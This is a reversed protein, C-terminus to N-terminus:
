RTFEFHRYESWEGVGRRNVARVRFRGRNAGAFSIVHYPVETKEIPRAFYTWQNPEPSRQGVSWEVEYTMPYVGSSPMWRFDLLRPYHDWKSMEHPTVFQPVTPSGDRSLRGGFPDAIHYVKQSGLNLGVNFEFREPVAANAFDLHGYNWYYGWHKAAESGPDPFNPSKDYRELPEGLLARVDDRTMDIELQRWKDYDPQIFEPKKPIAEAAIVSPGSALDSYAAGSAALATLFTRRSPM